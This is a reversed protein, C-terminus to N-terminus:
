AADSTQWPNQMTKNGHRYRSALTRSAARALSTSPAGPLLRMAEITGDAALASALGHEPPPTDKVRHTKWCM